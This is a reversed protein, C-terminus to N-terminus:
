IKKSHSKLWAVIEKFEPKQNDTYAMFDIAEKSKPNLSYSNLFLFRKTSLWATRKNGDSFPHNWCISQLLAAAKTFVTPYLDEGEYTAKPREVASHLLTFDRVSARTKATKIIASHIQYVEELEVYQWNM